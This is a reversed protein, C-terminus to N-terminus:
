LRSVRDGVLRLDTGSRETPDIRVTNATNMVHVIISRQPNQWPRFSHRKHPM